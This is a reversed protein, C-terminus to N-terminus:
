RSLRTVYIPRDSGFATVEIFERKAWEERWIRKQAETWRPRPPSLHRAIPGAAFLALLSRRTIKM